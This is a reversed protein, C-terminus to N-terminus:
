TSLHVQILQQAGSVTSVGEFYSCQCLHQSVDPSELTRGSARHGYQSSSLKGQRIQLQPLAFSAAVTFETQNAEVGLLERQRRKFIFSLCQLYNKELRVSHIWSLLVTPISLIPFVNSNWILNIIITLESPFVM